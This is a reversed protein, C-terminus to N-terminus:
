RVARCSWRGAGIIVVPLARSNYFCIAESYSSAFRSVTRTQSTAPAQSSTGHRRRLLCDSPWTGLTMSSYSKGLAALATLAPLM